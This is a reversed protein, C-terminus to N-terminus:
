SFVNNKVGMVNRQTRGLRGSTKLVRGCGRGLLGPHAHIGLPMHILSLQTIAISQCLRAGNVIIDAPWREESIMYRMNGLGEIYKRPDGLKVGPGPATADMAWGLVGWGVGKTLGTSQYHKLFNDVLKVKRIPHSTNM